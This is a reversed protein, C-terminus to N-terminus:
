SSYSMIFILPSSVPPYRSALMSSAEAGGREAGRREEGAADIGGAGVNAFFVVRFFLSMGSRRRELFFMQVDCSWEAAKINENV